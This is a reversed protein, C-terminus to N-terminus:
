RLYAPQQSRLAMPNTTGYDNEQFQEITCILHQRTQEINSLLSSLEAPVVSLEGQAQM